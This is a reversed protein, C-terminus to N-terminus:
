CGHQNLKLRSFLLLSGARHDTGVLLRILLKAIMM